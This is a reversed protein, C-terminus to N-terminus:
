PSGSGLLAPLAGALAAGAAIIAAASWGKRAARWAAGGVWGCAAIFLAFKVVAAARLLAANVSLPDRLLLLLMANEAIDAAAGLWILRALMRGTAPSASFPALERAAAGLVSAYGLAFLCDLMLIPEGGPPLDALAMGM